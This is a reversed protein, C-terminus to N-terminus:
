RGSTFRQKLEGLLTNADRLDTTTVDNRFGTTVSALLDYADAGRHQDRRLRALSVAARLEWMRAHQRGALAMASRFCAEAATPNRDPGALLVEGTLRHLEAEFWGEGTREAQTLAVKLLQLRRATANRAPGYAEALLARFYPAYYRARTALYDALGRRMQTIGAAPQGTQAHAWGGLIRGGALWLAFGQEGALAILDRAQHLVEDDHRAFQHVACRFFGALALSNLHSMARAEDVAQRSVMLAQDPDGLAFLTWSLHGLAAIRPDYTYLHALSRHREPDYLAVAQELHRRAALFDGLAFLGNGMVRHGIIRPGTDPQAEARSLLEEAMGLAARFEGRVHHFTFQGYLVRFIQPTAGIQRCLALARSHTRGTEAAAFGKTAILGCGLAVQLDLERRRREDDEPLAELLSLGHRFQTIAEATASRAFAQEGAKCRYEVAQRVLGARECHHALLEPQAAATAPFQRELVDAIRAHLLRRRSRLLTRYATEQVLAHKFRYLARPPTGHRFVLGADILRTLAQEVQDPPLPAVAALMEHSFERGIVAGIQAVERVPELRDLRAM